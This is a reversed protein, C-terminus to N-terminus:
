GRANGAKTRKGPTLDFSSVPMANADMTRARTASQRIYKEVADRTTFYRRGFRQGELEGRRILSRTVDPSCPWDLFEKSVDSVAILKSV